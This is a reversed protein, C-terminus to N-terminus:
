SWTEKTEPTKTPFFPKIMAALRCRIGLTNGIRTRNLTM